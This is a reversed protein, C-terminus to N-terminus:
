SVGHTHIHQMANSPLDNHGQVVSAVTSVAGAVPPLEAGGCVHTLGGQRGVGGQQECADGLPGHGPIPTAASPPQVGRAPGCRRRRLICPRAHLPTLLTFTCPHTSAGCCVDRSSTTDPVSLGHVTICTATTRTRYSLRALSRRCQRAVGFAFQAREAAAVRFGKGRRRLQATFRGAAPVRRAERGDDENMFDPLTRRPRLNRNEERDRRDLEQEAALRAAHPDDVGEEVEEDDLGEADYHDLHPQPQYDRLQFM